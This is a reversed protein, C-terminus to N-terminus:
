DFGDDEGEGTQMAFMSVSHRLRTQHTPYQMRRRVQNERERKARIRADANKQAITKDGPKKQPM